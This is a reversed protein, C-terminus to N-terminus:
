IEKLVEEVHTKIDDLIEVQWDSLKGNGKDENWVRVSEVKAIVLEAYYRDQRHKLQWNTHLKIVENIKSRNENWWSIDTDVELEEFLKINYEM